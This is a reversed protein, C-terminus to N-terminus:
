GLPMRNLLDRRSRWDLMQTDLLAKFRDNHQREKCHLLEYVNIYQLCSKRHRM